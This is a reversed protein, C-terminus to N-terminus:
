FVSRMHISVDGYISVTACRHFREHFSNKMVLYEHIEHFYSLQLIVPFFDSSVAPRNVMNVVSLMVLSSQDITSLVASVPLGM